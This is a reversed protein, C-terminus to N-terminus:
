CCGQHQSKCMYQPTPTGLMTSTPQKLLVREELVFESQGSRVVQFFVVGGNDDVHFIDVVVRGHKLPGGVPSLDRLFIVATQGLPDKLDQLMGEEAHVSGHKMTVKGDDM